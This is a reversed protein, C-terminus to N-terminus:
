DTIATGEADGGVAEVEAAVEAGADADAEVERERERERQAVEIAQISQELQGTEEVIDNLENLRQQALVTNRIKRYYSMRRKRSTITAPVVIDTMDPRRITVAAGRANAIARANAAASANVGGSRLAARARRNHNRRPM